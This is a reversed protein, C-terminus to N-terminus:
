KNLDKFNLEPEEPTTVNNLSDLNVQPFLINPKILLNSDNYAEIIELQELCLARLKSNEAEIKQAAPKFLAIKNELKQNINYFYINLGLLLIVLITLFPIAKNKMM